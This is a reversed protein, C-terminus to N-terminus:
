SDGMVIDAQALQTCGDWNKANHFHLTLTCGRQALEHQLQRAM